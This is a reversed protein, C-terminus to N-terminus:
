NVKNIPNNNATSIINEVWIRMNEKFAEKTFWAVPPTVWINGEFDNITQEDSEFSLGALTNEKIRNQIYKLDIMGEGAKTLISIIFADKSILDLKNNPLLNMTEENRALTPFIFDSNKLVDDLEQYEYNSNRSNKSWYIVNMGMQKGLEAIRSGISGLGIIGMTKGKIEWGQHNDYDIKWNNKMLLPLKRAVNFMLSIAYEAVSETAYKPVNSLFINKSNLFNGDVWAFSTTALCIAKLNTIKEIFENPFKWDTTEPWVAIIKEKSNQFVPNDTYDNTEIWVTEAQSEISTIQEQSFNSKPSLMIITTNNNM